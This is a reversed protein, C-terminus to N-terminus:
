LVIEAINEVATVSGLDTEDVDYNQPAEYSGLNHLEFEDVRAEAM